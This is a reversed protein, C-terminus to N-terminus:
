RGILSHADRYDGSYNYETSYINLVIVAIVTFYCCMYMRDSLTITKANQVRIIKELHFANDENM